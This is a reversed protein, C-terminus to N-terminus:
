GKARSLRTVDFTHRAVYLQQAEEVYPHTKLQLYRHPPTEPNGGHILILAANVYQNQQGEALWDIETPMHPCDGILHTYDQWNLHCLGAIVVCQRKLQQVKAELVPILSHPLSVEPIVLFLPQNPLTDDIGHIWDFIGNLETTRKQVLDMTIPAFCKPGHPLPTNWQSIVLDIQHDESLEVPISIPIAAM